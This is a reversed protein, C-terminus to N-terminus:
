LPLLTSRPLLGLIASPTNVLHPVALLITFQSETSLSGQNEMLSCLVGILISGSSIVCTAKKQNVTDAIGVSGLSYQYSM